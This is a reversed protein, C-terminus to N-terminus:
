AGGVGPEWADPDSDSHSNDGSHSDFDSDWMAPPLQPVSITVVDNGHLVTLRDTIFAADGLDDVTRVDWGSGEAGALDDIAQDHLTDYITKARQPDDAHHVTLEILVYGGEIAHDTGATIMPPTELRDLVQRAFDTMIPDAVAQFASGHDTFTEVTGPTWTCWSTDAGDWDASSAESGGWTPDTIDPIAKTIDAPTLLECANIYEPTEFEPTVPEPEYMGPDNGFDNAGIINEAPPAGIDTTDRGIQTAAIVAVIVIAAVVLVITHANTWHFGRTPDDSHSRNKGPRNGGGAGPGDRIIRGTIPEREPSLLGGPIGMQRYAHGTGTQSPKNLRARRPRVLHTHLEDDLRGHDLDDLFRDLREARVPLHCTRTGDTITFVAFAWTVVVPTVTVSGRTRPDILSAFVSVPSEHSPQGVQTVPSAQAPTECPLNDHGHITNTINDIDHPDLHDTIVTRIVEWTATLHQQATIRGHDRTPLLTSRGTAYLDDGFGTRDIFWGYREVADDVRPTLVALPAVDRGFARRPQDCIAVGAAAFVLANRLAPGQRFEGGIEVRGPRPRILVGPSDVDDILLMMAASFYEIFRKAVRRERGPTVAVNLHTSFGELHVRDPLVVGLDGVGTDLHATVVDLFGPAIRVPPTVVEVEPGDLTVVGGNSLRRANPDGPDRAPVGIATIPVVRRADLQGDDGRLVYEHEVGVVRGVGSVSSAIRATDLDDLLSM